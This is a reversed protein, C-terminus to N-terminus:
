AKTGVNEPSNRMTVAGWNIKWLRLLTKRVLRGGAKKPKEPFKGM